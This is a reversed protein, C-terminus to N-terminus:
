EGRRASAIEADIEEMTMSVDGSQLSEAARQAKLRACVAYVEEFDRETISVMMVKPKGNDTIVANGDKAVAGLVARTDNRLEKIGYFNM